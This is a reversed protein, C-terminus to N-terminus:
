WRSCSFHIEEGTCRRIFEQDEESMTEFCFSCRTLKSLHDHRSNLVEMDEMDERDLPAWYEAPVLAPHMVAQRLRLIVTVIKSRPQVVNSHIAPVFLSPCVISRSKLNTLDKKIYQKASM